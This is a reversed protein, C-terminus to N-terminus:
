VTTQQLQRSSIVDLVGDKQILQINEVVADAFGKLERLDTGWLKTDGLIDDAVKAPETKAWAQSLVPLLNTRLLTLTVMPRAM